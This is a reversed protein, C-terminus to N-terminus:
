SQHTVISQLGRVSGLTVANKGVDNFITTVREPLAGTAAQRQLSATDPHEDSDAM